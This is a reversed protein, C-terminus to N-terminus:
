WSFLLLWFVIKELEWVDGLPEAKEGCEWCFTVGAVSM